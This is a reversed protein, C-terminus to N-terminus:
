SGRMNKPITITVVTGGGLKSAIKFKGNIKETRDRMSSFGLGTEDINKIDFGKGDDTIRLVINKPNQKFTVIVKTAKAHRLINNLAEQAIYYLAIEVDPLMKITEDAILGAKIDARGEVAALRHHLASIFGEKEIEVVQMQHLFLRMERVAQRANDGIKSMMSKPDFEGGAEIIAQAAETLTVLGYLKQSVSDHLDRMLRQRESFAVALKRRRENDVLNAIHDALASLKLIENADIVPKDKRALFIGGINATENAHGTVLPLFLVSEFKGMRFPLPLGDESGTDLILRPSLKADSSTDFFIYEKDGPRIPKLEEIPIGFVSVPTFTKPEISVGNEINSPLYVIAAQTRFSFILHYITGDLFESLSASQSAESSIANLLVFMEDRATQRSIESKKQNTIDRWILLKWGKNFDSAMSTVQVNYYRYEDNTRFSKRIDISSSNAGAENETPISLGFREFSVNQAHKKPVGLIRAGELNLDVIKNGGDLLVWGNPMTEVIDVRNVNNYSFRSVLAVGMFFFSFLESFPFINELVITLRLMDIGKVVFFVATIGIAHFLSSYYFAVKIASQFLHRWLLAASVVILVMLYVYLFPLWLGNLQVNGNNVQVSFLEGSGITVPSLFYMSATIIPVIALLFGGGIPTWSDKKNLYLSIFFRISIALISFIISIITQLYPDINLATAGAWLTVVGFYILFAIRQEAEFKSKYAIGGLVISITLFLLPLLTDFLM